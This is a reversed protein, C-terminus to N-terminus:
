DTPTAPTRLALGSKDAIRPGPMPSRARPLIGTGVTVSWAQVAKPMPTTACWIARATECGFSHPAPGAVASNGAVAAKGTRRGDRAGEYNRALMAIAARHRARGAGDGTRRFGIARDLWNM